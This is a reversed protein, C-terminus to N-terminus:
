INVPIWIGFFWFGWQHYQPHWQPTVQQGWYNFTDHNPRQVPGPRWGAPPRGQNNNQGPQGHNNNQGPQAHNSPQQHDAQTAAVNPTAAAALGTGLGAGAIAVGGAVTAAVLARKIRM